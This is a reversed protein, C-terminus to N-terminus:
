SEFAAIRGMVAIIPAVFQCLTDDRTDPGIIQSDGFKKNLIHRREVRAVRVRKLAKRYRGACLGRIYFRQSILITIILRITTHHKTAPTTAPEIRIAAPTGAARASPRESSRIPLM